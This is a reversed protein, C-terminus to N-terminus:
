IKTSYIYRLTKKDRPSLEPLGSEGLLRSRHSGVSLACYNMISRPDYPGYHTATYGSTEEPEWTSYCSSGTSKTNLLSLAFCQPDMFADPTRIHEHRLGVLHGVEHLLTEVLVDLYIIESSTYNLINSLSVIVYGKGNKNPGIDARGDSVFAEYERWWRILKDKISLPATDDLLQFYVDADSGERCQEWGYFYVGTEKKSFNADVIESIVKALFSMDDTWHISAYKKLEDPISSPTYASSLFCIKLNTKPWVRKADYTAASCVMSVLFVAIWGSLILIINKMLRRLALEVGWLLSYNKGLDARLHLM